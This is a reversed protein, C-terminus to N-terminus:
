QGKARLSVYIKLCCPVRGELLSEIDGVVPVDMQLLESLRDAVPRLSFEM